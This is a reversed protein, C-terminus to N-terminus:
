EHSGLIGTLADEEEVEYPQCQDLRIGYCVREVGNRLDSPEIHPFGEEIRYWSRRALAWRENDADRSDMYGYDLIRADFLDKSYSSEMDLAGRVKEILEDLTLAQETSESDVSITQHCLWVPSTSDYLQYESAISILTDSSSLQTKVELLGAPLLFDQEDGEPGRWAQVTAIPGLRRLVHDALILLEGFLGIKQQHSLGRRPDKRLLNQWRKLRHVIMRFAAQQEEKRLGKTAEILDACLARFIDKHSLDLLKLTLEWRDHGEDSLPQLSVDISGLDPFELKEPEVVTGHFSFLYNGEHDKGRYLDVPHLADVRRINVRGPGRSRGVSDWSDAMNRGPSLRQTM